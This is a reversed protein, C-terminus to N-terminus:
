STKDNETNGRGAAKSDLYADLVTRDYLVRRGYHQVAGIEAGLKRISSRGLGCYRASEKESLMRKDAISTNMNNGM